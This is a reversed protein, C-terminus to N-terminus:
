HIYISLCQRLIYYFMAIRAKFKVYFLIVVYIFVKAFARLSNNITKIKKVCKLFVSESIIKRRACPNRALFKPFNPNRPDQIVSM